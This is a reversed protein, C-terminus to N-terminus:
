DWVFRWEGNAQKKWVTHFVGVNDHTGISDTFTYTYYGYTYGLEGSAAVDVFDPEWSLGTANQGHYMQDIREKGVVLENNRMLVADEAAYTVFAEHMGKERVMQAFEKETQLIEQKWLEIDQPAPQCGIMLPMWLFLVQHLNMIKAKTSSRIAIMHGAIMNKPCSNM